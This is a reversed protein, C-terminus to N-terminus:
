AAFKQMYEKMQICIEMCRFFYIRENSSEIDNEFEKEEM